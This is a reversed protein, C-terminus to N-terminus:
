EKKTVARMAGSSASRTHIKMRQQLANLSAEVPSFFAEIRSFFNYLFRQIYFKAICDTAAAARAGDRSQGEQAM